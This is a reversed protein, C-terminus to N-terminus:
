GERNNTRNEWSSSKRIATNWGERNEIIGWKM